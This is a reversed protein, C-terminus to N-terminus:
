KYARRGYGEVINDKVSKSSRRLQSGQEYLEFEPLHLTLEHVELAYQFALTYVELDKYSKM